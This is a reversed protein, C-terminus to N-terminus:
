ARLCERIDNNLKRGAANIDTLPRHDDVENPIAPDGGGGCRHREGVAVLWTLIELEARRNFSPIADSQTSVKVSWTRNKSRGPRVWLANVEM